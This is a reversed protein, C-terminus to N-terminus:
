IGKKVYLDLNYHSGSCGSPNAGSQLNCDNPNYGGSGGYPVGYEFALCDSRENCKIKCEDLSLNPYLILNHGAVCAKSTHDYNPEKLSYINYLYYKM